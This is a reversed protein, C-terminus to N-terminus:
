RGARRERDAEGDGDRQGPARDPQGARQLVHRRLLRQGAVVEHARLADDDGRDRAGAEALHPQGEGALLELEGGAAVHREGGPRRDVDDLREALGRDLDDRGRGIGQGMGQGLGSAVM